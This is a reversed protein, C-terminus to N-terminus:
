GTKSEEVKKWTPEDEDSSIVQPSAQKMPADEKPEKKMKTKGKPPAVSAIARELIEREESSSARSSLSNRMAEFLQEKVEEKSAEKDQNKIPPPSKAKAKPIKVDQIGLRKRYETLTMNYSMTSTLGVQLARGQMEMLRGTVIKENIQAPEFEKQLEELVVTMMRPDPGMSRFEGTYGKKSTYKTRLGCKMCVEWTAHQNNRVKCQHQTFCPFGKIRPDDVACPEQSM